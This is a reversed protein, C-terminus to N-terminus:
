CSAFYDRCAAVPLSLCRSFTLSEDHNTRRHFDHQRNWPRVVTSPQGGRCLKGPLVEVARHCVRKPFTFHHAPDRVHVCVCDRGALGKVQYGAYGCDMFPRM